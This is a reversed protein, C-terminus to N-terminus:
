SAFRASQNRHERKWCGLGARSSKETAPITPGFGTSSAQCAVAPVRKAAALLSRFIPISNGCPLADRDHKGDGTKNDEGERDLSAPLARPFPREGRFRKGVSRTSAKRLRERPRIREACRFRGSRLVLRRNRRFQDMRAQAASRGHLACNSKHALNKGTGPQRRQRSPYAASSRQMSRRSDRSSVTAPDASPQSSCTSVPRAGGPYASGTRARAWLNEFKTPEPMLSYLWRLTSSPLANLDGISKPAVQAGETSPQGPAVSDDRFSRVMQAPTAPVLHRANPNRCMWVIAERPRVTLASNRLALSPWRETFLSSRDGVFWTVGAEAAARLREFIQRLYGDIVPASKGLVSAEPAGETAAHYVALLDAFQYVHLPEFLWLEWYQRGEPDGYAAELIETPTCKRSWLNDRILGKVANRQAMPELSGSARAQALLRESAVRAGQDAASNNPKEGAAPQEPVPLDGTQENAARSADTWWSPPPVKHRRAFDLVAEKLVLLRNSVFSFAAPTGGTTILERAQHGELYGARNEPTIIRMGLRRGDALPGADDLRGNIIDEILLQKLDREIRDANTRSEALESAWAPLLQALTLWGKTRFLISM